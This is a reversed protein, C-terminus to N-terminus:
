RKIKRSLEKSYYEALGELMSELLAGETSDSINETASLVKIGNDRLQKKYVASHYRDRSFRDLSYVVVNEFTKNKADKIMKQFEPRSDTTGSIARDIYKGVIRMDHTKAYDECVRAQGEISQETQNDSSYRAYIVANKM